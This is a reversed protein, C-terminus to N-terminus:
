FKKGFIAYIQTIRYFKRVKFTHFSHTVHHHQCSPRKGGGGTDGGLLCGPTRVDDKNQGIVQTPSVEATVALLTELGRVDVGQRGAIGSTSEAFPPQAIDAGASVRLLLPHVLEEAVVALFQRVTIVRVM